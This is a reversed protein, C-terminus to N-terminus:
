GGNDANGDTRGFGFSLCGIFFFVHRHEDPKDNRKDDNKYRDRPRERWQRIARVESSKLIFANKLDLIPRSRRNAMKSPSENSMKTKM